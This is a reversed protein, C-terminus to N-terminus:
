HKSKTLGDVENRLSISRILKNYILLYYTAICIAVVIAVAYLLVADGAGAVKSFLWALALIVLDFVCCLWYIGIERRYVSYIFVNTNVIASILQWIGLIFLGTLLGYYYLVPMSMIMFGVLVLQGGYDIKRVLLMDFM